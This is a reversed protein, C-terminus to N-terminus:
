RVMTAIARTSPPSTISRETASLHWCNRWMPPTRTTSGPTSL